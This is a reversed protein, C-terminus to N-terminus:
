EEKRGSEIMAKRVKSVYRKGIKLGTKGTHYCEVAKWDEGYRDICRRLIWAGAMVNYCPNEIVMNWSSGFTRAWSSNVQMLGYDETGNPNRGHAAPDNDSEVRAIARLLAPSVDYTLGADRFCFGQSVTPLGLVAATLLYATLRRKLMKRMMM